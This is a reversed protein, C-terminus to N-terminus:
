NIRINFCFQLFASMETKVFLCVSAVDKWCKINFIQKQINVIKCILIFVVPM